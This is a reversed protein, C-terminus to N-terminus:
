SLAALYGAEQVAAIIEADSVKQDDYEVVMTQRAYHVNASRIGELDELAGEIAMACGTCHMGQIQYQKKIM